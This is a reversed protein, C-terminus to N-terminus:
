RIICLISSLIIGIQSKDNNEDNRYEDYKGYGFVRVFILAAVTSSSMRVVISIERIWAAAIISGHIVMMPVMGMMMVVMMVIRVIAAAMYITAAVAPASVATSVAAPTAILHWM